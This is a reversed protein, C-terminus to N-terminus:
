RQKTFRMAWHSLREQALTKVGEEAEKGVTFTMKEGVVVVEADDDVEAVEGAERGDKEGEGEETEAGDDVM